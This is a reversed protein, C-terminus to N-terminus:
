WTKFNLQHFYLMECECRDLYDMFPFIMGDKVWAYDQLDCSFLILFISTSAQANMYVLPFGLPSESLNTYSCLFVQFFVSVYCYWLIQVYKKLKSHLLHLPHILPEQHDPHNYHRISNICRILLLRALNPHTIRDRIHHDEGDALSALCIELSSSGLWKNKMRQWLVKRKGDLPQALHTEHVIKFFSFRPIVATVKKLLSNYAMALGELGPSKQPCAWIMTSALMGAFM